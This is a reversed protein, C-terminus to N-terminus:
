TSKPNNQKEKDSHTQNGFQSSLHFCAFTQVWNNEESTSGDKKITSTDRMWEQERKGM